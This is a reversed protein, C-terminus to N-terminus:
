FKVQCSDKGGQELGACLATEVIILSKKRMRTGSSAIKTPWFQFTLRKWPTPESEGNYILFWIIGVRWIWYKIIYNVNTYFLVMKSKMPGVGVLRLSWCELSLIRTQILFVPLNFGNTGNSKQISNSSPSITPWSITFMRQIRSSRVSGCYNTHQSNADLLNHEAVSIQIQSAQRSFFGNM